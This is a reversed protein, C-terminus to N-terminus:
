LQARARQAVVEGIALSATAAPSPANLVHVMGEAELFRFDDVLAGKRDVAQARVGSGGPALDEARVEPVLGRAAAAFAARSGARALEALATGMNSRAMRWFGGWALTSWTDSASFNARGYGERKFALVANPGVEMRGDVRRTFHVGLFPYRPDPVPYILNKVLGASADALVWYDGRFPVIRVDPELGSLRAIRDAHLGACAVLCRCPISGATTELVIRRAPGGVGGPGGRTQVALLRAGTRVEGGLEQVDQALARAVGPFDVIGTEPVFLAALGAVHPEHERMAEPGLRELGQLGNAAGRRALEDLRALEQERTAVVLKGCREFAVGREACFRELLARGRVCLEAKQSGPRYYLGSHAVGSNHGTQHAAVRDEKEIVVVSSPREGGALARATALGVIGAGVVVVDPSRAM